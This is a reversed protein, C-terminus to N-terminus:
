RRRRSGTLAQQAVDARQKGITQEAFAAISRAQDAYDSDDGNYEICNRAMLQVDALVAALGEDSLAYEGHDCKRRRAVCTIEALSYLAIIAGCM